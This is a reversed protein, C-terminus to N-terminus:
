LFFPHGTGSAGGGDHSWLTIVGPVGKMSLSACASRKQTDYLSRWSALQFPM